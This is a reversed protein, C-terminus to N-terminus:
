AWPVGGGSYYDAGCQLRGCSLKVPLGSRTMRKTAGMSQVMSDSALAVMLSLSILAHVGEEPYCLNGSVGALVGV